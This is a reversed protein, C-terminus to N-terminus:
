KKMATILEPVATFLDAVLGYDAVGFIPAEPDKNIAVIVKSDKMGALHQIAGSIGVALYLQPAVIKGTQGVQYDNPVYGADVAARSAGLAAGLSDALPEMVFRRAGMRPHPIELRPNQIWNRGAYLLDLDLVRPENKGRVTKRGCSREYEQMWQLLNELSGSWNIEGVQNRFRPTGLACDVPSTEYESSFRAGVDLGRLWRRALALQKARDGVNSGLGIGIRM